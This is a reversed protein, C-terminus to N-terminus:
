VFNRVSGRLRKHKSRHTVRDLRTEEAIETVRQSKEIVEGIEPHVGHFQQRHGLEGTVRRPAVAVAM